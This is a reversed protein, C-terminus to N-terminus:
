LVLNNSDNDPLLLSFTYLPTFVPLSINHLSFIAAKRRNAGSQKLRLRM